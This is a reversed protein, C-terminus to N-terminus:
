AVSEVTEPLEAAGACCQPKVILRASSGGRGPEGKTVAHKILRAVALDRGLLKHLVALNEALHEGLLLAIIDQLQCLITCQREVTLGGQGGQGQQPGNGPQRQNAITAIPFM